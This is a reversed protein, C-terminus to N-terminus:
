YRFCNKKRVNILQYYKIVMRRGKKYKDNEILLNSDYIGNIIFVKDGVKLETNVETYFLTKNYGKINYPEVYNM